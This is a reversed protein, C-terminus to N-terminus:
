IALVIPMRAVAYNLPIFRAMNTPTAWRYLAYKKAMNEGFLAMAGMAVAEDPTMIRTSVASNKRIQENIQHEVSKIQGDSVSANHSIDFRLRDEAVLSGKQAVHTGLTDRLAAHLLHTASHNARIASRRAHDVIMEIDDGTKAIGKEVVGSHVFLTGLKKQTNNIRM